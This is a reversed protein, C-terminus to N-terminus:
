KTQNTEVKVAVEKPGQMHDYVMKAITYVLWIIIGYVLGNIIGTVLGEYTTGMADPIFQEVVTSGPSLPTVFSILLFLVFGIVFVIAGIMAEGGEGKGTSIHLTNKFGEFSKQPM